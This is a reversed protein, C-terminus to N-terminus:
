RVCFRLIRLTSGLANLSRYFFICILNNNEAMGALRHAAANSFNSGIMM